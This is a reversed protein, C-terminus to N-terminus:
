LVDLRNSVVSMRYGCHVDLLNDDACTLSVPMVLGVIGTELDFVTSLRSILEAVPMNDCLGFSRVEGGYKVRNVTAKM